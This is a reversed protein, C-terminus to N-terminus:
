EFFASARIEFGPLANEGSIADAESFCRVDTPSRYAFVRKRRPDVLWVRLVGVAFYEELKETIDSWLDRPSLIEVVLEPAVDLFAPSKVRAMRERSIFLVDAARVTDPDRHTYIGVEGVLVSGLNEKRVYERLIAGVNSEAQGHAYGTPSLIRIEGRVLEACEDIGSAFLEEGTMPASEHPTPEEVRSLAQIATM